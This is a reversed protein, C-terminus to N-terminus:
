SNDIELFISSNAFLLKAYPKEDTSVADPTKRKKFLKPQHNGM